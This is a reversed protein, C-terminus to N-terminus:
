ETLIFRHAHSRGADTQIEVTPIVRGGDRQSKRQGLQENARAEFKSQRTVRIYGDDHLFIRMICRHLVVSM